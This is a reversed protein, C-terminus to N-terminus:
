SYILEFLGNIASKGYVNPENLLKNYANIIHTRAQEATPKYLTGEYSLLPHVSRNRDEQIRKLDVFVIDDFLSFTDKATKLIEREFALMEQINNEKRIKEIKQVIIKAEKEGLIALQEVKQNIDMIVALWIYTISARYSGSNYSKIAEEIHEKVNDNTIGNTYDEINM